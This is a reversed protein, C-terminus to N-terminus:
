SGPLKGTTLYTRAERVSQGILRADLREPTTRLLNAIVRRMQAASEFRDQPDRALAREVIAAFRQPVDPRVESLPPVEGRSAAVFVEIDDKGKFLKRGGLAQWLVVGLAYQDTQPTPQPHETMEPALYGVKGKIIDPATMRARDTARALGFDTLKVHGNKDLLLNQPTVDRHYIPAPSDEADVREHAAGLGRLAEIAVAALLHWPPLVGLENMAGIYQALSLGDVWEMVLYYRHSDLGFDYIQVVNPHVLQAAVRAEEVFMASFQEDHAFEEKVRKLGVPREFGAVGRQIARWVVAMGGSGAVEVLEYKGAILTGPADM